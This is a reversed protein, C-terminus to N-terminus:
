IREYYPTGKKQQYLKKFVEEIKAQHDKAMNWRYNHYVIGVIEIVEDVPTMQPQRPM